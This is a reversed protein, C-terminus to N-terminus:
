PSKSLESFLQPVNIETKAEQKKLAFLRQQM